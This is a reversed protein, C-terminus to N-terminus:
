RVGMGDTARRALGQAGFLHSAVAVLDTRAWGRCPLRVAFRLNPLDAAPEDLMLPPRLPCPTRSAAQTSTHLFRLGRHRLEEPLWDLPPVHLDVVEGSTDCALSAVAPPALALEEALVPVKAPAEDFVVLLPDGRRVGSLVEASEDTSPWLAAPAWRAAAVRRWRIRASGEVVVTVGDHRLVPETTM